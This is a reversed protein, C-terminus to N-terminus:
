KRFFQRNDHFLVGKCNECNYLLACIIHYIKLIDITFNKSTNITSPVFILKKRIKATKLRNECRRLNVFQQFYYIMNKMTRM